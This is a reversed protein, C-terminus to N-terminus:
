EIIDNYSLIVWYVFKEGCRVILDISWALCCVCNQFGVILIILSKFETLQGLWSVSSVEVGM